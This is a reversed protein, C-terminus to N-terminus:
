SGCQWVMLVRQLCGSMEKAIVDSEEPSCALVMDDMDDHSSVMSFNLLLRGRQM